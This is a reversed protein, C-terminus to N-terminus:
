KKISTVFEVRGTNDNYNKVEIGSIQMIRQNIHNEETNELRYESVAYEYFKQGDVDGYINKFAAQMPVLFKDQTYYIAPIEKDLDIFDSGQWLCSITWSLYSAEKTNEFKKPSIYFRMRISGIDTANIGMNYDEYLAVIISDNVFYAHVYQNNKRAHSVLDKITNYIAKNIAKYGPNEVIIDGYDWGSFENFIIVGNEATFYRNSAFQAGEESNVFKEFELDVDGKILSKVLENKKLEMYAVKDKKYEMVRDIIVAAEARTMDRDPDFYRSSNRIVGNLLYEGYLKAITPDYTDNYPYVSTPQWVKYPEIHLGRAVMYAVDNRTIADTPRFKSGIESPIIIGEKVATEIYQKAWSMDIDDFTSRSSKEVGLAEVLLKVFQERTVSLEPKYTGDPMGNIIKANALKMITEYAWNKNGSIILDKFSLHEGAFVPAVMTILITIILLFSISKKM